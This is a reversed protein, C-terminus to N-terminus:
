LNFLWELVAEPSHELLAIQDIENQGITVADSNEAGSTLWMFERTIALTNVPNRASITIRSPTYKIGAKILLTTVKDWHASKPIYLVKIM